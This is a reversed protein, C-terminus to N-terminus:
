IFPVLYSSTIHESSKFAVELKINRNHYPLSINQSPQPQPTPLPYFNLECPLKYMKSGCICCCNYMYQMAESVKYCFYPSEWIKMVKGKSKLYYGTSHIKHLSTMTVTSDWVDKSHLTHNQVLKAPIDFSDCWNITKM